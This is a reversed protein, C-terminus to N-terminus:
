WRWAIATDYPDYQAAIYSLNCPSIVSTAHDNPKPQLTVKMKLSASTMSM